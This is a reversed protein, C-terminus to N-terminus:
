VTSCWCVQRHSSPPTGGVLLNASGEKATRLSAKEVERALLDGKRVLRENLDAPIIGQTMVAKGLVTSLEEFGEDDVFDGWTYGLMEARRAWISARDPDSSAAGLANRVEHVCNPSTGMACRALHSKPSM